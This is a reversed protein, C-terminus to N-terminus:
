FRSEEAPKATRLKEEVADLDSFTLRLVPVEGCLRDFPLNYIHLFPTQGNPQQYLTPMTDLAFAPTEGTNLLTVNEPLVDLPHLSLGCAEPYDPFHLYLNNGDRTTLFDPREAFCPTPAPGQYAEKVRAYWDGITRLLRETEESLTGDPKPGVNLLYNGGKCLIRDISAELFRATYYDENRRYGWSQRGVSQCAETLNEFAGDPVFREPTSFDGADFGRNNIRIGPQLSRVLENISPDDIHPPIDWFMACIPGYNILLETVQRKIFDIYVPMDPVDTERPPIQHMSLPNYANPHHWDPNSYYLALGLGHKQCAESFEKVIDRKFPTHMVNYDTERTDWLCFGDHHKTTLCIYSIGCSKAFGVMADADFHVPNFEHLLAEYKERGIPTRMLTQEHYETLAYLGWHVFMGLRREPGYLLTYPKM